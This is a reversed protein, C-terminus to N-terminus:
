WVLRRYKAYLPKISNSLSNIIFDLKSADSSSDDYTTSVDGITVQKIARTLDMNAFSTPNFSKMILLYKSSALKLTDRELGEPISACNINNLVEAVADDFCNQLLSTGNEGVSIGLTEIYQMLSNSDIM